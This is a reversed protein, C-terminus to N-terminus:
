TACRPWEQSWHEYCARHFRLTGGKPLDCEIEVDGATILQECATCIGGTGQGAWTMRCHERPLAGALIKQRICQLLDEPQTM